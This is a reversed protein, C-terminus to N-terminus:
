WAQKIPAPRNQSPKNALGGPLEGAYQRLEAEAEQGELWTVLEEDKRQRSREDHGPSSHQLLESTVQM